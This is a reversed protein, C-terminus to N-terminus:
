IRYKKKNNKGIPALKRVLISFYKYFFLYILTVKEFHKEDEKVIIRIM